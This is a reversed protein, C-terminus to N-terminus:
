ARVCGMDKLLCCLLGVCLGFLAKGEVFLAGGLALLGMFTVAAKKSFSAEQRDRPDEEALESLEPFTELVEETPPPPVVQDAFLYDEPNTTDFLPTTEEPKLETITASM